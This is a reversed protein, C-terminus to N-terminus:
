FSPCSHTAPPTSRRGPFSNPLIKYNQPFPPFVYHVKNRCDHVGLRFINGSWHFPHFFIYEALEGGTHISSPSISRGLLSPLLIRIYSYVRNRDHACLQTSHALFRHAPSPPDSFWHPRRLNNLSHTSDRLSLNSAWFSWGGWRPINGSKQQM